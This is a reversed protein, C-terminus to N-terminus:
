AVLFNALRPTRTHSARDIVTSAATHGSNQHDPRENGYEHRDVEAARRTSYRYMSNYNADTNILTKIKVRVVFAFM